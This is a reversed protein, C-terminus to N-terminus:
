GGPTTNSRPNKRVYVCSRAKIWIDQHERLRLIIVHKGFKRFLKTHLVAPTSPGVYLYAEGRIYEETGFRKDDSIIRTIEGDRRGSRVERVLADIMRDIPEADAKQRQEEITEPVVGDLGLQGNRRTKMTLLLNFDEAARSLVSETIEDGDIAPIDSLRNFSLRNDTGAQENQPLRSRKKKGRSKRKKPTPIASEVIDPLQDGADGSSEKLASELESMLIEVQLKCDGKLFLGTVGKRRIVVKKAVMRDSEIAGAAKLVVGAHEIDPDYKKIGEPYAIAWDSGVKMLVEGLITKGDIVDSIIRCLLDTAAENQNCAAKIDGRRIRPMGSEDKAPPLDVGMSLGADSGALEALAELEEEPIPPPALECHERQIPESRQKKESELEEGGSAKQNTEKDAEDGAPRSEIVESATKEPEQCKEPQKPTTTPTNKEAKKDRDPRTQKRAAEGKHQIEEKDSRSTSHKHEAPAAPTKLATVSETGMAGFDQDDGGLIGDLIGGLTKAPQKQHGERAAIGVDGQEDESEEGHGITPTPPSAREPEVSPAPDETAPTLNIATSASDEQSISEPQLVEGTATDVEMGDITAADTQPETAPAKTPRAAGEAGVIAVQVPEPIEDPYVLVPDDFRLAIVSSPLAEPKISWYRHKGAGVNKDKNTTAYGREILIDALLDADQPVGRVEQTKLYDIVDSIGARWLIFLSDNSRWIKAGPENCTWKGRKVLHRIADFLYREIPVSYAFNDLDMRQERMDRGTSETDAWMSLESIQNERASVGAIAQMLDVMLDTGAASLYEMAERTLIREAVLMGMQEHRQHRNANWHIFYREISHTNIWEELDSIYPNWTQRGSEDTITIDTLPKGIDHLMGAVFAAIRWCGEHRATEQLPGSGFTYQGAARAAYFGTELGHRFLGGAGRHHHKESAPLLHVYSAFRRIMPEIIAKFDDNSLNVASRCKKILDRQSDIVGEVVVPPFGEQFPPYRPVENAEIEEPRSAPVPAPTAVQSYDHGVASGAAHTGPYLWERINRIILRM